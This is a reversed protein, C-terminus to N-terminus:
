QNQARYSKMFTSVDRLTIVGDGDHDATAVFGPDGPSTNRADLIIQKDTDDVVGDNNYDGTLGAFAAPAAFFTSAAVVLLVRGLFRMM